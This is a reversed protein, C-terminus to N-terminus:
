KVMTTEAEPHRKMADEIISMIQKANEVKRLGGKPHNRKLNILNQRLKGLYPNMQDITVQDFRDLLQNITM